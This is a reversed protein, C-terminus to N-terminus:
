QVWWYLRWSGDSEESWSPGGDVPRGCVYSYRRVYNPYDECEKREIIGQLLGDTYWEHRVYHDKTFEVAPNKDRHIRGEKYWIKLWRTDYAPRDDLSHLLGEKFYLKVRNCEYAPGSSAHLQHNKFHFYEHGYLRRRVFSIEGDSYPTGDMNTLTYQCGDIKYVKVGLSEAVFYPEDCLPESYTTENEDTREM